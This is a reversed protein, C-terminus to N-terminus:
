AAIKYTEGSWGAFDSAFAKLDEFKIGFDEAFGAQQELPVEGLFSSVQGSFQKAAEVDALCLALEAGSLQTSYPANVTTLVSALHKSMTRMIYPIAPFPVLELYELRRGERFDARLGQDAVSM